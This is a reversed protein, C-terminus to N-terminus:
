PLFFHISKLELLAMFVAVREDETNQRYSSFFRDIAFQPIFNMFTRNIFESELGQVSSHLSQSIDFKTERTPTDASFYLHLRRLQCYQQLSTLNVLPLHPHASHVVGRRM